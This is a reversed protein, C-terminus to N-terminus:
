FFYFSDKTYIIIEINSIIYEYIVLYYVTFIYRYLGTYKRNQKLHRHQFALYLFTKCSCCAPVQVSRIYKNVM